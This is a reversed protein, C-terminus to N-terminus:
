ITLSQEEDLRTGARFVEAIVLILLGLIIPWFTPLPVVDFTVGPIAYYARAYVNEAYIVATRALEGVIVALGIWRIRAANAPVFPQKDLILTRLVARLKGMVAVIFILIAM